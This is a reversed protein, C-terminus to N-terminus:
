RQYRLQTSQNQCKKWALAVLVRFPRNAAIQALVDSSDRKVRGIEISRCASFELSQLM